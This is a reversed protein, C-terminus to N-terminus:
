ALIPALGASGYHELYRASVGNCMTKMVCTACVPAHVLTPDMPVVKTRPMLQTGGTDSPGIPLIIRKRDQRDSTWGTPICPPLNAVHIGQYPDELRARIPELAHVVDVYSPVVQAFNDAASGLIWPYCFKMYMCHFQDLYAVIRALHELNYRTLITVTTLYVGRTTQAAHDGVLAAFNELCQRRRKVLDPRGTNIGESAEDYGHISLSLSTMGADLLEQFYARDSLRVGNTSLEIDRYGVSKAYAIMEPLDNRLTPENGVFLVHEAGKERMERLQENWVAAPQLRKRSRQNVDTCFVCRENCMHGVLLDVRKEGPISGVRVLYPNVRDFLAALTQPSQRRSNRAIIGALEKTFRAIHAAPKGGIDLTLQFPGAAVFCRQGALARTMRVAFPTASATDDEFDLQLWQEDNLRVNRLVVGNHPM